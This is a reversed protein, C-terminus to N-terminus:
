LFQPPRICTNMQGGPDFSYLTNPGPSMIAWPQASLSRGAVPPIDGPRKRRWPRFAVHRFVRILSEIKRWMNEARKTNYKGRPYICYEPPPFSPGLWRLQAVAQRRGAHQSRVAARLAAAPLKLNGLRLWGTAPGLPAAHLHRRHITMLSSLLVKDGGGKAAGRPSSM